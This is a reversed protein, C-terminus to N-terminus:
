CPPTKAQREKNLKVYIEAFIDEIDVFHKVIDPDFHKGSDKKIIEVTETHSYGKKYPRENRLADYVDAVAMIRGCLPIDKESLGKPYGSGDWKEHHYLAIDVGMNLYDNWPYREATLNLIQAGVSSHNKIMEFEEASLRGPKLLINDPVAVKGIDHLAAAQYINALYDDDIAEKYGDNRGLKEALVKCYEQTREIHYGTDNDRSRALEVLSVVTAKQSACVEKVKDDLNTKLTLNHAQLSAKSKQQNLQANIRAKLEALQIPKTVYDSGGVAFAKVKEETEEVVSSFIIPIEKLKRDAKLRKCFEFGDMEPMVIDLLILDPPEAAVAQLALNGNQYGVVEYPQDRLKEALIRYVTPSDDVVMITANEQNLSM